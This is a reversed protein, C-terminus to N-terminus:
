IKDKAIECLIGDVIKECEFITKEVDITLYEGDKYLVKGDCMTLVIDAANASYILNVLMNHAPKMWPNDIDMVVLDAKMGEKVLGCDLRGQSIAGNVTMMQMVAKPDIITPDLENGKQSCALLYASQLINHTNNSAMGDTGISCNVGAQLMKEVPAFGSALKCNSAPNLSVNVGKKAM